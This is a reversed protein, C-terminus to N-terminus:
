DKIIEQEMVIQGLFSGPERNGKVNLHGRGNILNETIVIKGNFAYNIRKEQCYAALKTQYPNDRMLSVFYFDDGYRAKFADLGNLLQTYTSLPSLLKASDRGVDNDQKRIDKHKFATMLNLYSSKSRIFDLASKVTGQFLENYDVIDDYSLEVQDSWRAYYYSLREFSEYILIVKYPNYWKEFFKIRYWLVYPDHASSGLNIINCDQIEKKLISQLVGASIMDGDYQGAEIFSNGLLFFNKSNPLINTDAGYLGINNLQIVQNGGEVSWVKYHPPRWTIINYDKLRDHIKFKRSGPVYRPYGIVKSIMGESLILAICLALVFFSIRKM